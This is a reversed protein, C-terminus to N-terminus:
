LRRRYRMYKRLERRITIAALAFVGAALALFVGAGMVSGARWSSFGVIAFIVALVLAWGHARSPLEDEAEGATFQRGDFDPAELEESKM